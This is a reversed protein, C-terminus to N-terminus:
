VLPNAKNLARLKEICDKCRAEAPTTYKLDWGVKSGCLTYTEGNSGCDSFPADPTVERVHTTIAAVTECAVLRMPPEEPTYISEATLTDNGLFYQVGHSFERCAWVLAFGVGISGFVFITYGALSM